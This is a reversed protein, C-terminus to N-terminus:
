ITAQMVGGLRRAKERLGANGRQLALLSWCLRSKPIFSTEKMNKLAIFPLISDLTLVPDKVMGVLYSTTDCVVANCVAVVEAQGM